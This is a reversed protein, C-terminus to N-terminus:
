DRGWVRDAVSRVLELKRWQLDEGGVQEFGVASSFGCQPSVALQDVSLYQSAEEIKRVIEDETELVPSKTNVLGLVVIKGKPVYRLVSFDGHREPATWEILWREYPVEAFMREAVRDQFIGKQGPFDNGRCIHTGLIVDDPLGEVVKRDFDITADLLEDVGIGLTKATAKVSWEHDADDFEAYPILDFQIYPAGAAVAEAVMSRTIKLADHAFDWPSDYGEEPQMYAAQLLMLSSAPVTLKFPVPSRLQRMMTAEEVLPNSRKQLRGAFIPEGLFPVSTGDRHALEPREVPAKVPEVADYLPGDFNARRLEGDNVIDMGIEVQRRVLEGVADDVARAYKALESAKEPLIFQPSAGTMGEYLSEMKRVVNAPRILSGVSEARAIKTQRKTV